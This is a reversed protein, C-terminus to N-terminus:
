IGVKEIPYADAPTDWSPLGLQSRLDNVRNWCNQCAPSDNFQPVSYANAEFQNRCGGCIL